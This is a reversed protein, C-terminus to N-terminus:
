DNSRKGTSVDIESQETQPVRSAEQDFWERALAQAQAIQEPTMLKSVTDRQTGAESSGQAAAVNLWKHAQVYDLDVGTGTTYAEGLKFQALVDGQEAAAAFLNAARAEQGDQKILYLGLGTRAPRNDTKAQQELWALAGAHGQEAALVAWPVANQPAVLGDLKGEGALQGLQLAAGPYGTDRLARRLLDVAAPLNQDMGRGAAQMEALAVMGQPSTQAAAKSYWFVAQEDSQAVGWKEGEAFVVGLNVQAGAEGAQAASTLWRLGEEANAEGGIGQLYRMGLERQAVLQGAEAARRFWALAAVRDQTVGRGQDLAVALNFQASVHGNGAAETLWREAEANNQAVGEGRSYARALEYQSEVFGLEASALLWNFSKSLDKEVGRGSRYLLGLYYQAEAHGRAAARELLGGAAQAAEDNKTSLYIRALLVAADNNNQEVAKELWGAAAEIDRPGGRGEALVRGYRYQALASGETEALIKLGDRVTVFDGARWAQEIDAMTPMPAPTTGPSPAIATGSADDSQALAPTSMALSTSLLLLPLRFTHPTM